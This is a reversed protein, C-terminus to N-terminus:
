PTECARDHVTAAGFDQWRGAAIQRTLACTSALHCFPRPM